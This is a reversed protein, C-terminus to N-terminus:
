KQFSVFADIKDHEENLVMRVIVEFILRKASENYTPNSMMLSLRRVVSLIEELSFESPNEIINKQLELYRKNYEIIIQKVGSDQSRYSKIASIIRKDKFEYINDEDSIDVILGKEEASELFGLIELLEYGWVQSLINANFMGIIHSSELIRTM